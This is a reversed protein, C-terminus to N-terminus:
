SDVDHRRLGTDMAVLESSKIVQQNIPRNYDWYQKVLFNLIPLPQESCGEQMEVQAQGALM